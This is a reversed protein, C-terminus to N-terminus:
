DNEWDLQTPTPRIEYTYQALLPANNLRDLLSKLWEAISQMQNDSFDALNDAYFRLVIINLRDEYEVIDFRINPYPASFNHIIEQAATDYSTM